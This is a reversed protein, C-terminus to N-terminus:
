APRTGRLIGPFASAKVGHGPFVRTGDGAPLGLHTTLVEGFVDRFDTTIALDRGEHRQEVALGPWRGYVRGGKVTGGIAIMSLQGTSLDRRLGLERDMITEFQRGSM